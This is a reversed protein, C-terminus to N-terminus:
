FITGNSRFVDSCWRARAVCTCCGVGLLIGELMVNVRTSGLNVCPEGM